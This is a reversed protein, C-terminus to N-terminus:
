DNKYNGSTLIRQNLKELFIGNRLGNNYEIETRSTDFIPETIEAELSTKRTDASSLFRQRYSLGVWYGNKSGNVYNGSKRSKGDPYFWSALGSIQNNKITFRASVLDNKYRLVRDNIYPVDRFYQVYDGDPLAELAPTIDRNLAPEVNAMFFAEKELLKGFEKLFKKSKFSKGFQSSKAKKSIPVLKVSVVNRNKEDRKLVERQDAYYYYYQEYSTVEEQHPYVFVTKGSIETQDIQAFFSNFLITFLITFLLKKM